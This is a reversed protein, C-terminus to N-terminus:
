CGLPSSSQGGQACAARAWSPHPPHLPRSKNFLSSFSPSPPQHPTQTTLFPPNPSPPAPLNRNSFCVVTIQRLPPKDSTKWSDCVRPPLALSHPLAQKSKFGQLISRTVFHTKMHSQSGLHIQLRHLLRQVSFPYLFFFLVFSVFLAIWSSVHSLFRSM